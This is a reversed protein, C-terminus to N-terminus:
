QIGALERFVGLAADYSATPIVAAGPEGPIIAHVVEGSKRFTVQETSPSEDAGFRVSVVLDEGTAMPRDVFSEARLNSLRSLLDTMQTQDVDAAEPATRKWESTPTGGEEAAPVDQKAFVAQTDGLTLDIGLANFSRFLFVDKSRAEDTDLTLEDLLTADLTFVMPRSLDRAYLSGAEADAGLALTAEASGSGLVATLRPRDLGYRALDDTGDDSVIAKMEAQLVRSILGDIASFDARAALPETLKWENDERVVVVTPSGTASVRVRDVDRSIDLVTKDRLDFTTKDLSDELYAAILILAPQGEVRAYLDGGTPTADGVDIRRMATEGAVRFALSFRAPALGYPAVDAPNDDVTDQLALSELSSALASAASVDADLEVPEVIRWMGDTKRLRTTEGSEAHVEIEEITGPEVDFVDETQIDSVDRGYEFFYIYGGLVLGVVILILLSRGRQM